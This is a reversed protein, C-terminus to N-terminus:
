HPYFELEFLNWDVGLDIDVFEWLIDLVEKGLFWSFLNGRFLNSFVHYRMAFFFPPSATITLLPACARAM